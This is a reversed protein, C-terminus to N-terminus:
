VFFVSKREDTASQSRVFGAHVTTLSFSLTLSCTLIPSSSLYSLFSFTQRTVDASFCLAARIDNPWWIQTKFILSDFKSFKWEIKEMVNHVHTFNEFLEISCTLIPVSLSPFGLNRFMTSFWREVNFVSQSFQCPVFKKRHSQLIYTYCVEPHGNKLFTSKWVYMNWILKSNLLYEGFSWKKPFIKNHLVFWSTIWENM